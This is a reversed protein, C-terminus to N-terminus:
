LQEFPPSDPIQVRPPTYAWVRNGTTRWLERQVSSLPSLHDAYLDATLQYSSHGMAVQLQKMPVGQATAITAFTHRLGHLTVPPLGADRLVARHVDVLVDPTVDCVYPSRLARPWTRLMSLLNEPLAFMRESHETKLPHREYKGGIRLRQGNVHLVGAELDIDCWRVGLAEGRRLGCLCLLLLPACKTASALEMYLEAEALSLVVAKKPKHRPTPCTDQDIVIPSRLGCRVAIKIARALTVRDLQAARPETNARTKVHRYVDMPTLQELEISLLWAPMAEISRRYMAQTSPALDSGSIYLEYWERLWEGTRM